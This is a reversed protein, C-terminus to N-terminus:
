TWVMFWMYEQYDHSYADSTLFMRWPLELGNLTCTSLRGKYNHHDYIYEKILIDRAEDLHGLNLDGGHVM